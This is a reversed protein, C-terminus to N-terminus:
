AAPLYPLRVHGPNTKRVIPAIRTNRKHIQLRNGLVLFGVALGVCDGSAGVCAGVWLGVIGFGVTSASAVFTSNGTSEPM